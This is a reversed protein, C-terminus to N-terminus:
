IGPGVRVEVHEGAAGDVVGGGAAHASDGAVCADEGCRVVDREERLRQEVAECAARAVERELLGRQLNIVVGSCGAVVGSLEHECRGCCDAMTVRRFPRLVM